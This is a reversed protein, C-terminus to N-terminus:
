IQPSKSSERRTTNWGQQFSRSVELNTFERKGTTPTCDRQCKGLINENEHLM